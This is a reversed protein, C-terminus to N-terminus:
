EEKLEELVITCDHFAGERFFTVTVSSGVDMAFIKQQLDYMDAVAEGNLATIIDYDKLGAKEAASNEQPMIIVGYDIGTNYDAAITEDITCLLYVGLAGRQVSGSELLERVIERVTASPIAFGMGEFGIESIKLVNIGVVNGNKDCLAGGSNGPNIAADTQILSFTSGDDTVLTRNLGSIIGKTVTGAFELGGPNGVAYATEGVKPLSDAFDAAVLHDKEAKLLALDTRRDYGIIEAEAESDDSFVASINECDAIVHYNTVIYGRDDIIVGSGSSEAVASIGNSSVTGTARIGVVSPLIKEAATNGAASEDEDEASSDETETQSVVPNRNERYNEAKEAFILTFFGGILAAAVMFIVALLLTPKREKM